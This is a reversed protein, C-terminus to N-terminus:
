VTATQLVSWRAGELLLAHEDPLQAIEGPSLVRQRQTAHTITDNDRWGGNIGPIRQMTPDWAEGQSHSATQRDYEGLITSIADLTKPDSIGKLILKTQFLTLLGDATETGWRTRAQSLDQLCALIHLHQGGAESLLAPLDHIPAINALEDLCFFVAPRGDARLKEAQAYTAHRIQELLGVVLPAAIAQQHAPATIYITDTSAPFADPDFNTESATARATDSNYAALTGATASFISSRERQETRAIGALVDCAIEAGHAELVHAPTDLDVRLVWSLVSTIPQESLRAAHLLPALLASARERWHDEHSTGKGTGAAASMARATLLAQDWTRAAGVPSWRLARVGPPPQESGGLDYLWTQGVESRAKLTAALVDTKTSTSVAPGPATRLSPIVVARTKGSRPPGLVLVANEADAVAWRGDPYRGLLAGGGGEVIRRRAQAAASPAPLSRNTEVEAAHEREHRAEAYALLLRQLRALQGNRWAKYTLWCCLALLGPWGLVDLLTWISALVNGHSAIMGFAVPWALLLWPWVRKRRPLQIHQHSPGWSAGYHNEHSRRM